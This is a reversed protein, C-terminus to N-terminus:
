PPYTLKMPHGEASFIYVGTNFHAVVLTAAASESDGGKQEEEEVKVQSAKRPNRRPKCIYLSYCFPYQKVSKAASDEASSAGTAGASLVFDNLYSVAKVACISGRSIRMKFLLAQGSGLLVAVLFKCGALHRVRSQRFTPPM